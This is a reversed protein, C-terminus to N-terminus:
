FSLCIKGFHAGAQMRELAAPLEELKYTKDIVPKLKWKDISATMAAFEARSGVSIGILRLNKSFLVPIMINESWGGLVGIIV